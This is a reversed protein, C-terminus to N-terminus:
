RAEHNAGGALTVVTNATVPSFLDIEVLQHAIFVWLDFGDGLLKQLDELHRPSEQLLQRVATKMQPTPGPRHWGRKLHRLNQQLSQSRVDKDTLIQFSQGIQRLHQAALELRSKTDPRWLDKEAKVEIILTSGDSLVIELDPTYSSSREANALPITLPQEQIHMVFPLADLYRVVDGELISECHIMRGLKRSSVKMRFKRGSRTVVNRVRGDKPAPM